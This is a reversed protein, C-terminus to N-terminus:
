AKHPTPSASMAKDGSLWGIVLLEYRDADPHEARFRALAEEGTETQSRWILHVPRRFEQIAAAEIRHSLRRSKYQDVM